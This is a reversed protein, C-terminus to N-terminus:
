MKWGDSVLTNEESVELKENAAHMVGGYEAVLLLTRLQYTNPLKYCPNIEQVADQWFLNNEFISFPLQGAYVARAFKEDAQEKQNDTM